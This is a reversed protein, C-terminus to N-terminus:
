PVCFIMPFSGYCLFDCYIRGSVVFSKKYCFVTVFCTLLVVNVGYTVCGRVRLRRVYLGIGMAVDCVLM